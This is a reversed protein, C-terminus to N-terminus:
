EEKQNDRKLKNFFEETKEAYVEGFKEVMYEHYTDTLKQM